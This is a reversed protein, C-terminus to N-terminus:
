KNGKRKTKGVSAELVSVTAAHAQEEALKMQFPKEGFLDWLVEAYEKAQEYAIDSFEGAGSGAYGIREDYADSLARRIIEVQKATLETM